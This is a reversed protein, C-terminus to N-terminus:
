NGRTILIKKEKAIDNALPTVVTNNSIKLEKGEFSKVIEETIIKAQDITKESVVENKILYNKIDYINFFCINYLTLKEEIKIIEKLYEKNKVNKSEFTKAGIVNINNVLAYSVARDLENVISLKAIRSAFDLSLTGLIVTDVDKFLEEIDIVTSSRYVKIVNPMKELQDFNETESIDEDILIKIINKSAIEIAELLFKNISYKNSKNFILLKVNTKVCNNESKLMQLLLKKIEEIEM